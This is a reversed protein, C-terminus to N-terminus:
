FIVWCTHDKLFCTRYEVINKHCINKLFRVERIIDNWKESAQKGSFGMKKIAVTEKSEKDVAKLLFKM